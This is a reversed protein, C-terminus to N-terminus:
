ELPKIQNLPEGKRALDWNIELESKHEKYWELVLSLARSPFKGTIIGSSIEITIDYEGYRAHFHPPNHDNYAFYIIIGLFRSIEPM